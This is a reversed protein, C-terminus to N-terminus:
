AHLRMESGDVATGDFAVPVGHVICTAALMAELEADTAKCVPMLTRIARIAQAISLFRAKGRSLVYAEAASEVTVTHFTNTM